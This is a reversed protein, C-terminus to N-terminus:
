RLARLFLINVNKVHESLEDKTFIEKSNFILDFIKNSRIMSCYLNALNYASIENLIEKKIKKEFVECLFRIIVDKDAKACEQKFNIDQYTRELVLRLFKANDEGIFFNCYENGFVNLFDPLDLNAKSSIMIKLNELRTEARFKLAKLFLNNKNEFKKYITALSGGTVKVIDNLSTNEYGKELFLELAVKLIIEEKGEM